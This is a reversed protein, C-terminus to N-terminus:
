KIPELLCLWRTPSRIHYVIISSNRKYIIYRYQEHTVIRM